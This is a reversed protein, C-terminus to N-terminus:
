QANTRPKNDQRLFSFELFSSSVAFCLFGKNKLKELTKITKTRGGKILHPHFEVVIQNVKIEEQLIHDIVDFEAGEIDMKLLDIHQHKNAEMVEKLTKFELSLVDSPNVTKVPEISGSVHDQNKPLYFKRKGSTHSIGFEFMKFKKNQVNKKLWRISKPTPDFGLVDCQFTNILELDFSIDTGIGVSYVISKSNLQDSHVYFGGYPSGFWKKNIKIDPSKIIRGELLYKIKRLYNKFPM